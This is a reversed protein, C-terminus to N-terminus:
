RLWESPNLKDKEHRVEFHLRTRMDDSPDSFIRGLSQGAEVNQGKRVALDSIGAYVTLYEGHRVLVVNHYGEMVIVMSVVGPYVATAYAGPVTEIDIGNNMLEVKHLEKHTHRGFDSVIVASGSVPMPLKGKAKAFTAGAPATPVPLPAPKAAPAPEAPKASEAKDPKATTKGPKAAPKNKDKNKEERAKAEAAAKARQEEAKRRAEEEAAKRKREEEAAKRAEEEIIRNLENDLKKALSQQEALVKDLQRSEKKLRTIVADADARNAALVEKEKKLRAIDASLVTRASDLEAKRTNLRESATKLEAAKETEWKGLEQLYRLRKRAETFSRASFVFATSSALQRQRRIATLSSAYSARLTEVRRQMLEVSDAMVKIRSGLSDARASLRAISADSRAINAELTQLRAMQKRTDAVNSKIRSKTGAIKKANETKEKQVTKSTRKVAGESSAAMLLAIALLCIFRRM